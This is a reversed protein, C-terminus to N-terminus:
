LHDSNFLCNLHLDFHLHLLLILSVKDIFDGLAEASKDVKEAVNEISRISDKFKGAPLDDAINEAVKDVVEAVKEIREVIEEVTYM